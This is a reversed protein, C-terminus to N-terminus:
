YLGNAVKFIALKACFRKAEAKNGGKCEAIITNHFKITCSFNKKDGTGALSTFM